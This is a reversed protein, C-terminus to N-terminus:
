CSKSTECRDRTDCTGASPASFLSRSPRGGNSPRQDRQWKQPGKLSGAGWEPWKCCMRTHNPLNRRGNKCTFVPEYERNRPQVRIGLRSLAFLAEMSLLACLWNETESANAIQRNLGIDVRSRFRPGDAHHIGDPLLAISLAAILRM